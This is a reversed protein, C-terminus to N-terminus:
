IIDQLHEQKGLLTGDIRDQKWTIQFSVESFHLPDEVIILSAKARCIFFCDEPYGPCDWSENAGHSDYHVSDDDMVPYHLVFSVIGSGILRVIMEHVDLISPIESAIEM